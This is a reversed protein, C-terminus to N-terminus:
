EEELKMLEALVTTAYNGKSLEFSIKAFLRGENFEDKGIELLRMKEPFLVIEKRAGKSSVEPMEEVRFKALGIGEEELIKKEIEGAKGSALESEFGPLVATAIGGILVDGEIPKLGAGSKLREEIIRNFLYSQYAHTFLFRLQKQLKRFAGAFDNPYRCLHHILAREPRYEVPFSKSAASFDLTESLNKRANKIDEREKEGQMTLFLMVAEKLNGNVFERGVLHTVRRVGGFRQEGFFNAIGNKEAEKFFAEIRKRLEKEELELRRITIVFRNGKLSGIEIREGQWKLPRLDITRSRFLELKEPDPDFITLYQCTIARKDKLGAYGFRKRSLQLFRSLRRLVFNVDANYKELECLLQSKERELPREPVVIPTAKNLADELLFRKVEAIGSEAIEEVIFDSYRQKIHGGIGKSSTSYVM